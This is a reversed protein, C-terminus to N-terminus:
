WGKTTRRDLQVVRVIPFEAGRAVFGDLFNWTVVGDDSEPELLYMALLGRPQATWVVVAGATIARTTEAEYRGRLTTELHNQFRPGSDWSEVVFPQVMAQGGSSARDIEIGHMALLPTVVAAVDDRLVYAVPMKRSLTPVFRDLVPMPVPTVVGTRRRGMPLGAEFRVAPDAREVSEVLVPEERREHTIRGRLGIDPSSGQSWRAVEADASRSSAVVDAAHEAVYGLIERVFAYTSAVRREFPDHSYAEVLVSIRGRLGYYNTGFRPRGDYSKWVVDGPAAPDVADVQAGGRVFNGYPFVDIGHSAKMRRRVDELLARTPGDALLAAQSLSPSYTLAYGHYSGDTAHLDVFVDPDWERWMALAARTEDAEAKVYDRNLDLGRANPRRGVLEPGRQEPRNQEQPGFRENGDANYIPVAVLVLSDLANKSKELVLDRVLAQLAEKGEVEGAHINAQVYVIPRGLAKAERASRVLPRSAVVYPIERGESTKGMSSVHVEAGCETLSRLFGDVDEYRSTELYSTAEAKTRPLNMCGRDSAAPPPRCAAVFTLMTVIPARKL